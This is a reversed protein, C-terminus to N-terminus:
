QPAAKLAAIEAKLERIESKMTKVEALLLVALRGYDVDEPEPTELPTEIREVKTEPLGDERLVPNGEDDLVPVEVRNVTATRYRVLRPEVAHVEEAILGIHSWTEKDDGEANKTRYWVPRLNDVANSALSFDLDEVDKKYKISSSTRRILGTSTVVVTSGAATNDYTPQSTMGTPTIYMYTATTTGAAVVFLEMQTPRSSGSWVGTTSVVIGAGYNIATGDSAAFAIQGLNQGTGTATYTGPTVNYGKGLILNPESTATTGWTLLGLANTNQSTGTIQVAPTVGGQDYNTFISGAYLRAAGSVGIRVREEVTGANASTGFRIDGGGSTGAAASLIYSVVRAGPTSTDSTYFEIKGLPQNVATSVDNDVFRLTNVATDSTLGNNSGALVFLNGTTMNYTVDSTTNIDIGSTGELAMTTGYISCLSSLANINVAQSFVDFNTVQFDATTAGVSFVYELLSSDYTLALVVGGDVLFSLDYSTPGTESVNIRALEGVNTTPDYVKNGTSFILSGNNITSGATNPGLILNTGSSAGASETRLQAFTRSNTPTTVDVVGFRMTAATTGTPDGTIGFDMTATGEVIHGLKTGITGDFNTYSGYATSLTGGNHDFLNYAGFATTLTGGDIQVENFTAYATTATGVSVDTRNYAGYMTTTTAGSRTNQAQNYAGYITGVTGAARNTALSRTGYLVTANSTVDNASGNYVQNYQAYHSLTFAGLSAQTVTNVNLIGYSTQAASLTSDTITTSLNVGYRTANSTYSKTGTITASTSAATSVGLAGAIFANGTSDLTFAAVGATAIGFQDTGPSYIGTNTDNAITLVPAAATGSGVVVVQTSSNIRLAEIGGEVFAITDAAPFYIGTNLDGTAAITPTALAGANVVVQGTGNLALTLNGNAGNALTLSGTTANGTQLVLNGNGNSTITATAAADGVRLTDADVQVDGTGNPALVIDGNTDTSSITNGSLNLNDVALETSVTIKGTTDAITAAATGDKAKINTVELNTLDLTTAAISGANVAGSVTLDTGNFTLNASDVQLGGTSTYPVRTATLATNTVSTFKGTSASNAGIATGDIEGAAIDVKTINVEGTGNPTLDINGNTDTSTIANGDLRLNDVNLLSSVTIAGTSNAITAAATSDQAKIAAVELNTVDLTTVNVVGAADAYVSKEAPYTVFVDKLNAAFPVLNGSNSSELVTDRSLTPGTSSYTGIGVEWSGTAADVIAYYTTNGDGVVNFTQFGNVAGGLTLTGTGATISTERVRDKVVLAM